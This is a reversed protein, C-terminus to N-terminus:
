QPASPLPTKLRLELLAALTGRIYDYTQRRAMGYGLHGFTRNPENPLAYTGRQVVWHLLVSTDPGDRLAQM